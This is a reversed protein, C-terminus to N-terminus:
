QYDRGDTLEDRGENCDHYAGECEGKVEAGVSEYIPIREASESSQFHIGSDGQRGPWQLVIATVCKRAEQAQLPTLVCGPVSGV